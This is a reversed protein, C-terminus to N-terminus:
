KMSEERRIVKGDRTETCTVSVKKSDGELNGIVIEQIRGDMLEVKLRDPGTAIASKIVPKDEYPEIVTLFRADNGTSRIGYVKRRPFENGLPYDGGLTAKFRVADTGALDIRVIGPKQDNQPQGPTAAKFENGAIKIPGGRYDLGAQAPQVVNDFTVPLKALPIERGDRTVIRANAWFVTPVKSLEVKTELELTKIGTVPIDLDAQGLIWAGFKGENLTRGDGRVTYFLRKQVDHQEPATGVMIEQAAPWLSHVDLKLLGPENFPSRDGALDEGPGWCQEFRSIAPAKVKYWSCDTVFQGSGVPDPNMQADHRLFQKGPAELGKFGKIQFLNDFTHPQGGKMDDALVVYDDMVVMIRRQRVPETFGTLTGYVPLKEPVPVSRGERWCKEAFTKVPVYDYVMGGYPPNSWRAVAEIGAAQMLSGAHFLFRDGPTAEQMKQDVVVMNHNLSTQCYFKYMFPEYVWFVSEPNYFSRGYRMLSLLNTRDFHGHAWGHTGYHLVAQIQERMPRNATQSRLMAVGVNDAAASERFQEPTTEPLEPVGYLLDRQQGGGRKIIAAYKPDRFVYYAIEFPQGFAERRYGAVKNEASDNVGFMIGRYDIFPLLGEWLDRIQRFPRRNPGFVDPNMGFPKRQLEPDTDSSGAGGNLEPALMVKPSLSAPIWMDRFNVGWPQWALAAQSFESACWMNYSITCEYWWGDDMTGKSLQDCIGGPGSFFREATVLDQLALACYCAGTVEALNWNNISGGDNTQEMTELLCRFMLEIQRRDAPSLIGADLIMDYVMAIHQFYGGEQVLSQNCARLTKAYGKAPDSLRLLFLAAKEAHKRNGTLQWSIGCAMLPSETQATAFIFPGYTDDPDNKPPKAIEPVKWDDAIKVLDDQAAKAWPHRAVKEKVERWREPTHLIYPHPLEAATVLSLRSAKAADGNPVALLLQKEHGGPPVNGPIKVRVQCTQTQGPALQMAAPEVTAAMAQWGHLEFSLTVSQPQSTCNTVQVPYEVFGPSAASKGRVETDLAVGPARIIRARRLTLTGGKSGDAVRVAIRIEQIFKLLSYRAQEFSFASWPLTVLHSGKGQLRVTTLVPPDINTRRAVDLTFSLETERDDPLIVEAQVGYFPRVDWSGDHLVRFGHKYFGLPGAPHRFAVTGPATLLTEGADGLEIWPVVASAQVISFKREVMAATKVKPDTSRGYQWAVVTVAVPFKARPPIATFVLNNGQIEAPGERVYYRVPLGSDATAALQVSPTGEPQDPIPPFTIQQDAGELNPRVTMLAQQVMSKYQDDGPHTALLWLDGNRRDTVSATRNLNYAFTKPGTQLVPGTIRSLVIPGGGTAHGLPTGVPLQTWRALNKSGDEVRDLFTTDLTFSVGDPQPKFPLTVQPHTDRQPLTKGDQVYGLLQPKKGVQGAQYDQIARATEEDFAWFAEKPDGAYKGYPAPPCQRPQNLHWREVLWGTAPDVPKLVPAQDQPMEAPLRAEAAKRIFLALFDVLRDGGDFHGRGPEALVALPVKLHKQRFELAPALRGELWEYEGMVMLGPVGDITRDGWGPNPRGSGTMPTLPADGHVSLIALTRGPNWAAFNWPYSACASHGIPVIPAFELERYGSEKALAAMMATFREGAGKDFQFVCDVQPVIWVEAMGLRALERRFAPHEFIGEELMNHQGVVVARVQRCEPPIWLFARRLEQSSGASEVPVSWQWEAAQAVLSGALLWLVAALRGFWRSYKPM